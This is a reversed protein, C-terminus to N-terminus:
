NSLFTLAAAHLNQLYCGLQGYPQTQNHPWRPLWNISKGMTQHQPMCFNQNKLSNSHMRSGSSSELVCNKLNSQWKKVFQIDTGVHVTNLFVTKPFKLFKKICSSKSKLGRPHISNKGNEDMSFLLVM